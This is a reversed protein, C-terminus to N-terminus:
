AAANTLGGGSKPRPEEYMEAGTIMAAITLIHEAADTGPEIKGGHEAASDTALKLAENIDAFNHDGYVEPVVGKGVHFNALNPANHHLDGPM